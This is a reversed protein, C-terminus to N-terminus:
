NIFYEGIFLLTLTMCGILLNKKNYFFGMEYRYVAIIFTLIMFVACAWPPLQQFPYEYTLNM